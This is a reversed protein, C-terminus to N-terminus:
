KGRCRPHSKQNGVTGASPDFDVWGPGPVYVQVWAHTNGGAIPYGGEKHGEEPLHMYGSVFRAAIGRLRLAEIMLVALDRCSGSGLAITRVPDQIGKEHRALHRFTRRITLTMNVLLAHSHASGDSNFFQDSWGGLAPQPLVTLVFQRVRPWDSATYGFPYARAYDEIDDEHFGNPAHELRNTGVFCLEDSRDTFHAIAVHNGFGDRSWALERPKPTIELESQLLTQGDDDRPRLMMRHEGFSVQRRYRYSTVHKISLIPMATGIYRVHRNCANTTGVNCM